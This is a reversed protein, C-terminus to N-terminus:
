QFHIRNRSTVVMWEALLALSHAECTWNIHFLKSSSLKYLLTNEYATLLGAIFFPYNTDVDNLNQVEVVNKSRLSIELVIRDM